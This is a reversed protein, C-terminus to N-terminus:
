QMAKVAPYSATFRAYAAAYPEAMDPRPDITEAVAPRIMVDAPEAGTLGCISLRAAGLAAGFEGKSPLDVPIGLVTALLEVWYRSGTGGGIALVRDLNAGTARLAEFSDRLAFSVGELVARTLDSTDTAIGLGSFAGRIASDNHPTREGSLYPLFGVAGPAALHEGLAGTLVAPSQGTIRSLWNLCDTAALIVGMQYWRDPIAHCFTHVASEPMPRFGDRAALLVGSTGLSVFGDGESLAGVGCAAAANDGGGAVVMVGQPLGLTDALDQRVPGIPDTGEVLDPMQDRRMGSADLLTESWDRAGVDLWATGASDSMESVTRGTLWYSLYDKPLLVKAIKQFIEPEHRAVWVLKPATFGPFVINGSLPRVDPIVDLEAAERHSRTDNWLIAPRLVHGDKDLLTAGHMQGSLGIGRLRAMAGPAKRSLVSLATEAATVWDSPNQESWGPHPHSVTLGADAEAVVSGDSGTLLARVGSTGLDLGIFM